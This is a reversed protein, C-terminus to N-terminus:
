DLLRTTRRYNLYTTVAFLANKVYDFVSGWNEYAYGMIWTVGAKAKTSTIVRDLM